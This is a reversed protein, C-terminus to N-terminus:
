QFRPRPVERLHQFQPFAVSCAFKRSAGLDMKYQTSALNLDTSRAVDGLVRTQLKKLPLKAM